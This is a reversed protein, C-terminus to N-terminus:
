KKKLIFTLYFGIYPVKNAHAKEYEVVQEVRQKDDFFMPPMIASFISFSSINEIELDTNKIKEKLDELSYSKAFIKYRM